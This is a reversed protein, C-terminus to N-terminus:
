DSVDSEIVTPDQARRGASKRDGRLACDTLGPRLTQPMETPRNTTMRTREYKVSGFPGGGRYQTM